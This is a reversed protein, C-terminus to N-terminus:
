IAESNGPEGGMSPLQSQEGNMGEEPVAPEEGVPSTPSALDLEKAIEPQPKNGGAKISGDASKVKEPEALADAKQALRQLEIKHGELSMTNLTAISKIASEEAKKEVLMNNYSAELEKLAMEREKLVIERHSLELQKSQMDLQAQLQIVEPPPPANPDPPQVKKDIDESGMSRLYGRLIEYANVGPQGILAMEAQAKQMRQVESSMNPDAIPRIDISKDEFDEQAIALKTDMATFYEEDSLYLRNLRYLKDFEQQLARYLRRQVSGLVKSGQNIVALATTAPVNQTKMDGTLAENISAIEKSYSNLLGLLQLLVANPEAVDLKYIHNDIKDGLMSFDVRKFEGLEFTVIDGGPLTLASDILGCPNNAMNGADILNNAISNSTELIGHMLHGLGLGYYSGDPSPLFKFCTFYHVPTIRLVQGDENREIGDSDWRAVIRLIVHNKELFVVVYPEEYGDGDLDLYTHQEIVDFTDKGDTHSGGIPTLYKDELERYLGARVREVIENRPLCLIHSVRRADELSGAHNSIIVEDFLCTETRPQKKIPDYYTKRFAMGTLPFSNLLKDTDEEWHPDKFLCQYSMFQSIRRARDAKIGDPDEGIVAAQVVEGNRVIESYTRAAYQVVSSVVMPLKIDAAGVFPVTKNSSSELKALKVIAKTKEMWDNLSSLDNSYGIHCEKAISDLTENDILDAINPNQQIEDLDLKLKLDLM